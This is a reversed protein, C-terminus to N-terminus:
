GLYWDFPLAVSISKFGCNFSNPGLTSPWDPLGGTTSQFVPKTSPDTTRTWTPRLQESRQSQPLASHRVESPAVGGVVCAPRQDHDHRPQNHLGGLSLHPWSIQRPQHRCHRLRHVRCSLVIRTQPLLAVTAGHKKSSGFNSETM